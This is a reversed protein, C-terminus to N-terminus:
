RSSVPSDCTVDEYTFGELAHKVTELPDTDPSIWDDICEEPLLIPQRDSFSRHREKVPQTLLTFAPYRIEKYEVVRYVGAFYMVPEEAPTEAERSPEPPSGKRKRGAKKPPAPRATQFRVCFRDDMAAYDERFFSPNFIGNLGQNMVYYWSCPLICRRSELNEQWEAPPVRIPDFFAELHADAARRSWVMPFYARRGTRNLAIGTMADGPNIEGQVKPETALVSAMRFHLRSGQGRVAIYRMKESSDLFLTDM